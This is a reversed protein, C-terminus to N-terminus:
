WVLARSYLLLEKCLRVNHQNISAFGCIAFIDYQEPLPTPLSPTIQSKEVPSPPPYIPCNTALGGPHGPNSLRVEIGPFSVVIKMHNLKRSILGSLDFHAQIYGQCIRVMMKEGLTQLQLYARM